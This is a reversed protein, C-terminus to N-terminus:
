INRRHESRAGQHPGYTKYLSFMYVDAGLAAVDPLGLCYSVGDVVLIGGAVHILEAVARIDHIEAVINPCHTMAVIQCRDTMLAMLDTINLRGTQPDITSPSHAGTQTRRWAGANAEHEQESVIVQDGKNLRGLFAPALVYTNQSTSLGYMVEDSSM